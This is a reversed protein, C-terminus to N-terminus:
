KKPKNVCLSFETGPNRCLDETSDIHDNCDENTHCATETAVSAGTIGSEDGILFGFTALVAIFALVLVLSKIKYNM